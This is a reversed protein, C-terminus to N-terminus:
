KEKYKNLRKKYACGKVEPYEWTQIYHKMKEWLVPYHKQLAEFQQDTQFPCMWCATRVFGKEYGSWMFASVKKLEEEYQEKTLSYFPAIIKFTVHKVTKEISTQCKRSKVRQENRGGRLLVFTKKQELLFKDTTEHIFEHMCERFISNPFKEKEAYHQLIHRRPNLIKLPVGMRKCVDIVHATVCPYEAGTEVFLAVMEKNLTKNVTKVWNLVAVSDKGGSFQVALLEV